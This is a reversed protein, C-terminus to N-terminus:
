IRRYGVRRLRGFRGTMGKGAPIVLTVRTGEAYVGAVTQGGLKEIVPLNLPQQPHNVRAEAAKARLEALKATDVPKPEPMHFIHATKTTIMLSITERAVPDFISINNFQMVGDREFGMETRQRGEADRM